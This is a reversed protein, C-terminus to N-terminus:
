MERKFSIIFCTNRYKSCIPLVHWTRYLWDTM